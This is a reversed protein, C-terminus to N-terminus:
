CAPRKPRRIPPLWCPPRAADIRASLIQLQCAQDLLEAVSLSDLNTALVGDIGTHLLTLNARHPEPPLGGDTM